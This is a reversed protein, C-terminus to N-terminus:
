SVIIEELTESPEQKEDSRKQTEESENSPTIHEIDKESRCTGNELSKQSNELRSKISHLGSVSGGNVKQDDDNQFYDDINEMDDENYWEDHEGHDLADEDGMEDPTTLGDNTDDQYGNINEQNPPYQDLHNKVQSFPQEQYYNNIIKGPTTQTQFKFANISGVVGTAALFHGASKEKQKDQLTGEETESSQYAEEEEGEADEQLPALGSELTGGGGGSDMTGGGSDDYYAGANPDNYQEIQIVNPDEAGANAYFAELSEYYKDPPEVDIWEGEDDYYGAYQM